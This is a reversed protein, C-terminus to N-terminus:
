RRSPLGRQRYQRPSCGIVKRFVRSFYFQDTFGVTEAIRAVPEETADLYYCARQIRQHQVFEIPAYGTIEQFLQTIRSVSLYTRDTLDALTIRQNLHEQVYTILQEVERAGPGGAAGAVPYDDRYIGALVLMAASSATLLNSEGAGRSLANLIRDFLPLTEAIRDESVPIVRGSMTHPIYTPVFDGVVHMWYITWPDGSQAGYSHGAGAPITTVTGAVVELERDRIRIFGSGETCLILIHEDCGAPRKRLHGRANPFHGADTVVLAHLVPNARFEVMRSRPVVLLKEHPFGHRKEQRADDDMSAFIIWTKPVGDM